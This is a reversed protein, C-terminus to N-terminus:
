KLSPHNPGYLMLASAKAKNDLAERLDDASFKVIDRHAYLNISSEALVLRYERPLSDYMEMAEHLDFTTEVNVSKGLNNM